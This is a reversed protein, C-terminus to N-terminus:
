HCQRARENRVIFEKPMILKTKCSQNTCNYWRSFYFRQALEKKTIREHERIETARGCRRCRPGDNGIIKTNGRRKSPKSMLADRGNNPSQLGAGPMARALEHL